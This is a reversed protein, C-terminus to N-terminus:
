LDDNELAEIVDRPLFASLSVQLDFEEGRKTLLDRVVRLTRATEANIVLTVANGAIDDIMVDQARALALRGPGTEDEARRKAIERRLQLTSLNHDIALKLLELQDAVGVGMVERHHTFSLEAHRCVRTMKRGDPLTIQTWRQGPKEPTVFQRCVSMVTAGDKAVFRESTQIQGWLDPFHAQGHLWVDGLWWLSNEGFTAATQEIAIYENFTLDGDVTLSGERFMVRDQLSFIVDNQQIMTPLQDRKAPFASM